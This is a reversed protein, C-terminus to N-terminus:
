ILPAASFTVVMKFLNSPPNRRGKPDSELRAQKETLPTTHHKREKVTGSVTTQSAAKAFRTKVPLSTTRDAWTLNGQRDKVM